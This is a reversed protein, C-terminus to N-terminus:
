QAVQGRKQGPAPRAKPTVPLTFRFCAGGGPNNQAWIRGGHAEVISRVISLGLGMGHTKTSFFSDFIQPLRDTPIGPGSDEVAVEVDGKGDYTTRMTLRRNSESSESMAELGNLILNLLVQRLHIADGRVFPLNDAFRKEIQVGQRHTENAAFRLVDLATANLDILELQLERKRLLGRMRQVVDSARMGDERIDTLIQRFEELHSQKSELLIQAAEANTLIAGLPQGLEHAVSATLEGAMTLRAAHALETRQRAAELEAQKRDTIDHWVGRMRLPKGGDFEVRGRATIWRVQGDPLVIRYETAYEGLTELAHRIAADRVARDEPHVRATLAAEDLRSGRALGSLAHGKDTMWVKDKVVDWEWMALNAAEAALNMREESAGLAEEAKRRDCNEQRLEAYLRANELSIAAQSAFLELVALRGPTFARPMLNNELYLVGLLTGMKVLPLCLISRLCRERVHDDHSFPSETSSADDLIVSGRTRIVYRLISEPFKPLAAFAQALIVQVKDDRTAAEAATGYEQGHPLFLLGREAGACEVAIVMLTEILKGLDIERSVAQMAKVVTTLDLQEIPAGMM